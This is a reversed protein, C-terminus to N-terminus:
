QEKILPAFLRNFIYSSVLSIISFGGLVFVPMIFRIYYYLAIYPIVALLSLIITWPLNKVSLLLANRMTNIISNDFRALLPFVYLFEFFYVMFLAVLIMRAVTLVAGQGSGSLIKFDLAFFMGFFMMILWIVTAQRFNQRFYRFFGKVVYGDEKAAMKRTVASLASLSAGVTFVPFCCIIFIVNLIILDSLRDLFGFFPGNLDFIRGNM